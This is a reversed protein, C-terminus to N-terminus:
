KSAEITGNKACIDLIEMTYRGHNFHVKFVGYGLTKAFITKALQDIKEIKHKPCAKM